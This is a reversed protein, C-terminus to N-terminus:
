ASTLGGAMCHMRMNTITIQASLSEQRIVFTIFNAECNVSATIWQKPKLITDPRLLVVSKFPTDEEDMFMDVVAYGNNTDLLFEVHSMHIKRGDPRYPNFPITKASFAILKSLIGGSSYATFDQSDVNLTVTTNTASIVTYPEFLANQNTPDFNNIETMGVVSNIGVRDGAKFAQSSTTVVANAAQTIAAIGVAYDDYDTNVQYIFGEDDGALTKQRFESLGIKNWVEETTDWRLWTPDITEDIEDWTLSTGVDTQGFVTFRQEYVSWTGEEYNHVLVRDQTTNGDEDKVYTWKFQGEERDFGGYTLDFYQQSIENATWDPIRNDFRSSVRGDTTILGTKGVSKTEGGWSVSSFPADTGLVSPVRRWFFPNFADRTKELVWNSRSFNGVVFNGEIGAGTLYESTDASLDGAGVVDFKDGNGSADRIGSYLVMQPRFSGAITPAFFCLRGGFWLVFWAKTLTGLPPNSFDANDLTFSQVDTGDYQYIDSMQDSTFVFRQSGDAFPYTVGSVYPTDLTLGFGGAPANGANTLQDFTNTGSNYRYLFEQTCVLLQTSNDPLVHEFIGLIRTGDTLRGSSFRSFGKRSQLVQRYVFGNVIEQFSDAPELYTVGDKAMGSRYGTIEFIDM